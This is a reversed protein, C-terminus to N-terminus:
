QGKNQYIIEGDVLTLETKGYVTEGTFPTNSGLSLYDEARLTFAQTLDFIALDAPQNVAIRGAAEIGFAHAPKVTMWSFLQELSVLGKTVLHTYLECFATESGTIGFAAKAFGCQKESVTHPAHDTAIMDITGDLLGEILAERDEQTRLPPNMKFLGSDSRIDSDALLLHHPTVECTVTVGHSKALRVLEVSSRTSVHCIHYHVGTQQALVLDRAIQTTEALETIPPLGYEQAKVGDNIVGYQFLDDDQAHQAIILDNDKARRMAEYMVQANQVGHGDNSLAFCGAAQLAAYDLIESSNQDATIPAYQLIHVVGNNQNNAIMRKLQEPTNPVPTVNPMAAVTTFGGHAAALSGTHVNEKATQGPDRYHVHVDVLGPSVLKGAANISHEATLDTGIAAIIGNRILVDCRQIRGDIFVNGSKIVTEM